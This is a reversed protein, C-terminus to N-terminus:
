KSIRLVVERTERAKGLAIGDKSSGPWGYRSKLGAVHLHSSIALVVLCLQMRITTRVEASRGPLYM